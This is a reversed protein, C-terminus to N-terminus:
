QLLRPAGSDPLSDGFVKLYVRGGAFARRLEASMFHRGSAQRRGPGMLNLAVPANLELGEEEDDDILLTVAHIGARNGAALVVDYQLLNTTVDVAFSAQLQAGQQNFDV